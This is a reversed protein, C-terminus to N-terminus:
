SAESSEAGNPSVSLRGEPDGARVLFGKYLRASRFARKSIM